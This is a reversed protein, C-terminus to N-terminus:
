VAASKHPAEPLIHEFCCEAVKHLEWRANEALTENFELQHLWVITSFRISNKFLEM